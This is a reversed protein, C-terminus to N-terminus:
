DKFIREINESQLPSNTDNEINNFNKINKNYEIKMLFIGLGYLIIIALIMFIFPLYIMYFFFLFINSFFIFGDVTMGVYVEYNSDVYFRINNHFSYLIKFSIFLPIISGLILGLLPDYNYTTEAGFFGLEDVSSFSIGLFGFLSLVSLFYSMIASIINLIVKM